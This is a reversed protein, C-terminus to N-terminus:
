GFVLDLSRHDSAIPALISAQSTNAPKDSTVTIPAAPLLKAFSGITANHALTVATDNRLNARDMQV